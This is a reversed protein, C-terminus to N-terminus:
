SSVRVEMLGARMASLLPLRSPCVYQCLGCEVCRGVGAASVERAFGVGMSRGVQVGELVAAPNVGTPCAEICWGCRVCADAPRAPAEALAHLYLDSGTVVAEPPVKLEQLVDGRRLEVGSLPHVEHATAGAAGLGALVERVSMGVPVRVCVGGDVRHDYVGLPVQLVPQDSRVVRGVAIAAAADLLLVGAASLDEATGRGPVRRGLVRRVVLPPFADPYTNSMTVVRSAVRLGVAVGLRSGEAALRSVERRVREPVCPEVVFVLRGAASLRVLVFAGAVLDPTAADLLNGLVSLRPDPDMATVLVHDVPSPRRLALELQRALSPTSPRDVAAGSQWLGEAWAERKDEPHGLIELLQESFPRPSLRPALDHQFPGPQVVVAWTRRGDTRPVERLGVVTGSVPTRPWPEGAAGDAAGPAGGELLVDGSRVPTGARPASGPWATPIALETTPALVRFEGTPWM